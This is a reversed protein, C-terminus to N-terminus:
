FLKKLDRLANFSGSFQDVIIDQSKTGVKEAEPAISVFWQALSSIMLVMSDRYHEFNGKTEPLSTYAAEIWQKVGKKNQGGEWFVKEDMGKWKGGADWIGHDVFALNSVVAYATYVIEYFPRPINTLKATGDDNKEGLDMPVYEGRTGIDMKKILTGLGEAASGAFYSEQTKKDGQGYMLRMVDGLMKLNVHWSDVVYPNQNEFNISDSALTEGDNLKDYVTKGEIPDVVMTKFLNIGNFMGRIPMPLIKGEVWTPYGFITKELVKLAVPNFAMLKNPDNGAYDGGRIKKIAAAEKPSLNIEGEYMGLIAAGLRLGKDKLIEGKIKPDEKEVVIKRILNWAEDGSVSALGPTRVRGKLMYEVEHQMSLWINVADYGTNPGAIAPKFSWNGNKEEWEFGYALDNVNLTAINTTFSIEGAWRALRGKPTAIFSDWGDEIEKATKQVNQLLEKYRRDEDVGFKTPDNGLSDLVEKADHIHIAQMVSEATKREKEKDTTLYFSLLNISFTKGNVTIEKTKNGDKKFVSGLFERETKSMKMETEQGEPKYPNFRNLSAVAMDFHIQNAVMKRLTEGAGEGIEPSPESGKVDLGKLKGFTLRLDDAGLVKIRRGSALAGYMYLGDYYFMQFVSAHEVMREIGGFRAMDAMLVKALPQIEKKLKDVSTHKSLTSELRNSMQDLTAGHRQLGFQDAVMNLRVGKVDTILLGMADVTFARYIENLKEPNRPFREKTLIDTLAFFSSSSDGREEAMLRSVHEAVQAALQDAPDGVQDVPNITAEQIWIPDTGIKDQNINEPMQAESLQTQGGFQPTLNMESGQLKTTGGINFISVDPMQGGPLGSNNNKSEHTM